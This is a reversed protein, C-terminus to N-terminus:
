GIEQNFVLGREHLLELSVESRKAHDAIAKRQSADSADSAEKYIAMVTERAIRFVKGTDDETWREGDYILWKKWVHSYRVYWGHQDAFRRANGLDTTTYEDIPTIPLTSLTM